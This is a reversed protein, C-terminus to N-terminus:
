CQGTLHGFTILKDIVYSPTDLFLDLTSDYSFIGALAGGLSHGTVILRKGSADASQLAERIEEKMGGYAAFMGRHVKGSPVNRGKAKFNVMWDRISNFDTGRFGLYVCSKNSLVVAFMTNSMIVRAQWGASGALREVELKEEYVMRSVVAAGYLDSLEDANLGDFSVNYNYFYNESWKEPIPFDIKCDDVQLIDLTESDQIVSARCGQLGFWFVIMFIFQKIM